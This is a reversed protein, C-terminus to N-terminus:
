HTCSWNAGIHVSGAHPCRMKLAEGAQTICSAVVAGINEAFDPRAEVQLEDHITGCPAWDVGIRHGEQQFLLQIAKKMVVAGNGQCITNLASHTSRLVVHRGDIGTVYGRSKFTQVIKATLVDLGKMSRSIARRTLVGIEKAPVKPAPLGQGRMNEVIGTGLKWDGAGFLLAYLATKAGDRDIPFGAARVADRNCSHEDSADEKSGHLLRHTYAGGDYPTLFHALIRAELGQADVGVMVWGPRAIWLSRMRPDSDAQAVNPKSHTMRGGIAGCPNVRGHIRGDNQVMKLWGNTGDSLMGIKKAAKLYNVMLKAAPFKMSGLVTEDVTPTGDKGFEKPRWGAMQLREAIHQRSSPNFPEDWEKSVFPVGTKMGRPKNDRKPIITTIRRLPPFQVQLQANLDALEGRLEADLAQAAKEDFTWGNREQESVAWAVDHELQASEGWERVHKVAHWVARGAHIDQISYAEFEPNWTDYGGKYKGKYVGTREGWADLSNNREEPNMLRALVLTDILKHREVSGPLFHNLAHYDFSIGNHFVYFDAAKLRAVGESIPAYGAEDRYIISDNGDADGIQICHLKTMDKLLNDTECDAILVKM